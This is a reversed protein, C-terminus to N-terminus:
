RQRHVSCTAAMYQVRRGSFSGGYHGCGGHQDLGYTAAAGSSAKGQLALVPLLALMLVAGGEPGDTWRTQLVNWAVIRWRSRTEGRDFWREFARLTVVSGADPVLRRLSSRAVVAMANALNKINSFASFLPLIYPPTIARRMPMHGRTGYLPLRLAKRYSGPSGRSTCMTHWPRIEVRSLAATFM